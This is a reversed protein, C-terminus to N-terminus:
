GIYQNVFDDKRSESVPVETGDKLIVIGGKNRRRYEAVQKLNILHSQHVRLFGFDRLLKDYVKLTRSVVIRKGGEFIFQTYNRNAICHIIQKVEVVIFGEMTPLVIQSIHENLNKKLIEYRINKQLENRKQEVKKVAAVLENIDVPKLLYDLASFRIASIAYEDYATIFVVEFDIEDLQKLIEFGSGPSLRVDLFVLEPQYHQIANLGSEVGDAECLIEVEKCFHTLCTRVNVRADEEDDIIITRIM